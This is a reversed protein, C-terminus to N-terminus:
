YSSFKAGIYYQLKSLIWQVCYSTCQGAPSYAHSDAAAALSSIYVICRLTIRV